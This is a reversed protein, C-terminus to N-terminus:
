SGAQPYPTSVADKGYKGAFFIAAGGIIHMWNSAGNTAAIGLLMGGSSPVTFVGILGLLFILIGIFKLWFASNEGSWLAVILLIAGFILHILNHVSDTVFLANSGILPNSTFGLLGLLVLIIGFITTFTKAM